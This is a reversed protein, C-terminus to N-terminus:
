PDCSEIREGGMCTDSGGGGVIRDDGPGGDLLDDRPGGILVDDGEEGWLADKHKGGLLKDDGFGGRVVDSQGFTEVFDDGARGFVQDRGWMTVISDNAESGYIVDAYRRGATDLSIGEIREVLGEITSGERTILEYTGAAFDANVRARLDIFQVSDSGEGGDVDCGQAEVSLQVRDDGADGEIRKTATSAYIADDGAGGAILNGGADIYDRGGRGHMSDLGGRGKFADHEASGWITDGMPSGVVLTVNKLTDSGEGEAVGEELDAEVGNPALSFDVYAGTYTSKPDDHKSIFEDAGDAGVLSDGDNGVLRDNGTDGCVLDVPPGADPDIEDIDGSTIVVDDGGLAAVVDDGDTGHIVDNGPTGVLTAVVGQCYFHDAGSATRTMQSFSLMGITLLALSTARLTLASVPKDQGTKDTSSRTSM